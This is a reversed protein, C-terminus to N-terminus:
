SGDLDALAEQLRRHVDDYIAVHEDVPASTVDALRGLAADVRPEGTSPLGTIEEPDPRSVAPVTV